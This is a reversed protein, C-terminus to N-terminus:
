EHDGSFEPYAAAGAVGERRSAVFFTRELLMQLNGPLPGRPRETSHPLITDPYSAYGRDAFHHAVAEAFAEDNNTGSYKSILMPLLETVEVPLARYVQLTGEYSVADPIPQGAHEFALREADDIRVHYHMFLRALRNEPPLHPFLRELAEDKPMADEGANTSAPSRIELVPSLNLGFDQVEAPAKSAIAHGIEHFLTLMFKTEGDTEHDASRRYFDLVTMLFITGNRTNSLGNYPGLEEPYPAPPNPAYPTFSLGGLLGPYAAEIRDLYPIAANVIACMEAESHRALGRVVADRSADTLRMGYREDLVRRIDGWSHVLDAPQAIDASPDIEPLRDAETLRLGPVDEGANFRVIRHILIAPRLDPNMARFHAFQEMTLRGERIQIDLFATEAEDLPASNAADRATSAPATAARATAILLKSARAIFPDEPDGKVLAQALAERYIQPVDGLGTGLRNVVMAAMAPQLRRLVNATASSPAPLTPLAGGTPGPAVQARRAHLFIEILPGHEEIAEAIPDTGTLFPSNGLSREIAERAADEMHRFHQELTDRAAAEMPRMLGQSPDQWTLGDPAPWQFEQPDFQLGNQPPSQSPGIQMFNDPMPNERRPDSQLEGPRLDGPQWGGPEFDLGPSQPGLTRNEPDWEPFLRDPGVLNGSAAINRDHLIEGSKGNMATFINAQFSALFGITDGRDLAILAAQAGARTVARLEEDSHQARMHALEDRYRIAVGVIAGDLHIHPSPLEFSRRAANGLHDAGDGFFVTYMQAAARDVDSRSPLPIPGVVGTAGKTMMANTLAPAGRGTADYTTDRKQPLPTSMLALFSM